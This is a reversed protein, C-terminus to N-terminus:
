SGEGAPVTRANAGNSGNSGSSVSTVNASGGVEFGTGIPSTSDAKSYGVIKKARATIVRRNEIEGIATPNKPPMM